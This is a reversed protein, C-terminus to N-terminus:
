EEDRGPYWANREERALMEDIDVVEGKYYVHDEPIFHIASGHVENYGNMRDVEGREEYDM